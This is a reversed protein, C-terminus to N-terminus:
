ADLYERVAVIRHEVDLKRAANALFSDGIQYVIQLKGGIAREIARDAFYATDNQRPMLIPVGAGGSRSAVALGRGAGSGGGIQLRGGADAIADEHLTDLVAAFQASADDRIAVIGVIIHPERATDTLLSNEVDHILDDFRRAATGIDGAAFDA